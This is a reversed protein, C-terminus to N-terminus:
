KSEHQKYWMMIINYIFKSKNYIPGGSKTTLNVYKIYAKNFNETEEKTLSFTTLM